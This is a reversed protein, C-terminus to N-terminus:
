VAYREAAEQSAKPNKSINYMPKALDIHQRKIEMAQDKTIDKMTGLWHFTWNQGESILANRFASPRYELSQWNREQNEIKAVTVSRMRSFGVYVVLGEEDCVVYFM